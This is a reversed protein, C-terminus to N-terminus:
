NTVAASPTSLLRRARPRRLFRLRSRPAARMGSPVWRGLPRTSTLGFLHPPIGLVAAFRRLQTVDTLKRQGTEIRSLTSASYGVLEGAQALSLKRAIRAMRILAGPQGAAAVQQVAPTLWIPHTANMLTERGM